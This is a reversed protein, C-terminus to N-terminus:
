EDDEPYIPFGEEDAYGDKRLAEYMDEIHHTDGEMLMFIWHVYQAKTAM